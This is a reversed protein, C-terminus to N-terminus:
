SENVAKRFQTAANAEVSLTNDQKSWHREDALAGRLGGIENKDIMVTVSTWSLRFAHTERLSALGDAVHLFRKV